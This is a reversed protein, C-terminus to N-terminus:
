RITGATISHEGGFTMPFKEDDLVNQVIGELQDIAKEIDPNIEPEPLTVIGIKKYPECWFHEDFLEVQHSAEIMARPGAATGGGYSVSAELGFPIVVAKASAYDVADELALGLFATESPLCEM